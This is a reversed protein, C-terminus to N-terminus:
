GAAKMRKFEEALSLSIQERPVSQPSVLRRHKNALAWLREEDNLAMLYRVILHDTPPFDGALLVCLRTIHKGKEFVDTMQHGTGIKYTRGSKRNFATVFGHKLFRRYQEEGVVLKLTERARIERADTNIPAAIRKGIIAPAHRSAIIDRLREAPTRIIPRCEWEWNRFTLGAGTCEYEATVRYQKLIQSAFNQYRGWSDEWHSQWKYVTTTSNTISPSNNTSNSVKWNVCVNQWTGLDGTGVM